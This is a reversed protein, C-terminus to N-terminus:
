PTHDTAEVRDEDPQHEQVCVSIPGQVPNLDGQRACVCQEFPRDTRPIIPERALIIFRTVNSSDDQIEVALHEDRLSGLCTRQSDRLNNAAVFEAAGTTDNVAEHAINLGLKM